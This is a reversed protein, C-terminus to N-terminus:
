QNADQLIAVISEPIERGKREVALPRTDASTPSEAYGAADDDAGKITPSAATTSRSFPTEARELSRFPNFHGFEGM